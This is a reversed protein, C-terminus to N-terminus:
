DNNAKAKESLWTELDAVPIITCGGVRISPFGQIAMWRYITPPSVGLVEAAERPRYAIRNDSTNNKM